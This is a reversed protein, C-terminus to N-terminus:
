ACQKKLRLQVSDEFAETSSITLKNGSTSISIRDNSCTVTYDSLVKNEDTLTVTYKGDKFKMDKLVEEKDESMFSPITNHEKLLDVIQDYAKEIGANSYNSGIYLSYITKETRKYKGSTNRCGAVFEWVLAQTAAWKEDDSGDLNKKNGQYGYLLALGVAKKKSDSLAKWADSSSERLKDGSNLTVGPQICYATDGDVSIRNINDGEGGAYHGNVLAGSNYKLLVGDEDYTPTFTITKADRNSNGSYDTVSINNYSGGYHFCINKKNNRYENFLRRNCRLM